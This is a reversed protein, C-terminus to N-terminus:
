ILRIDNLFPLKRRVDELFKKDLDASLITEINKKSIIEKGMPDFISSYGNYNLKLDKGVRNVAAVYCQNEIARAKLLARWHEIRADPWNAINLILDVKQKAYFRFLEPFRLDYCISLGIKWGKVKTVVIRDGAKYFKNEKSFSFPHIKRYKAKLNGKSDIHFLTNYFGIGNKEIFGAFVDAKYKSAIGAFFAITQDCMKEALSSANMSFGTLTMEPFVIIDGLESKKKLVSLVNQMNLNKNEWVPSFQFLSIKMSVGM